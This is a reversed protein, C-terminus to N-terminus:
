RTIEKRRRSRRRPSRLRRTLLRQWVQSRHQERLWAEFCVPCPVYGDHAEDGRDHTENIDDLLDRGGAARRHWLFDVLPVWVDTFFRICCPPYGEERGYRRVERRWEPTQWRPIRIM